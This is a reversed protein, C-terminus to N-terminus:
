GQNALPVTLVVGPLSGPATLTACSQAAMHTAMQTAMARSLGPEGAHRPVQVGFQLPAGPASGSALQLALQPALPHRIAVSTSCERHTSRAPALTCSSRPTM